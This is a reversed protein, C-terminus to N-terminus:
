QESSVKDTAQSPLTVSSLQLLIQIYSRLPPAEHVRCEEVFFGRLGPYINCLSKNIPSHTTETSGCQTHIEKMKEISGTPDHWYVEHSSLLIGCVVEGSVNSYPTFIFPGSMLEEEIKQKSAAMETWIFAYLRSMQTISSLNIHFCFNTCTPHTLEQM